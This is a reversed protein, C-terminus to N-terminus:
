GQFKVQGKVSKLAREVTRRDAGAGRESVVEGRVDRRGRAMTDGQRSEWESDRACRERVQAGDM